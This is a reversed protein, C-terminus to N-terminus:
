AEKGQEAHWQALAGAASAKYRALPPRGGPPALM